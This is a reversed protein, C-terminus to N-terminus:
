FLLGTILQYSGSMKACEELVGVVVVVVVVVVVIVVVVVLAGDYRSNMVKESLATTM